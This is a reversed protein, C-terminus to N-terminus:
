PLLDLGDALISCHEAILSKVICHHVGLPCCSSKTQLIAFCAIGTANDGVSTSLADSLSGSSDFFVVICVVLFSTLTYVEMM